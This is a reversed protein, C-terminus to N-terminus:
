GICDRMISSTSPSNASIVSCRALSSFFICCPRAFVKIRRSREDDDMAGSVMAAPIGAANFADAVIEAHKLSTCFTVNLKGRAHNGYHRVADGILVRDQEMREALEGKAYDGATTKIGTLDPRSPAFLRYQSLRGSQILAAISPGQDMTDFWEGLGAGSMKWPTASLGVVWAGIAQYHRIITELQAAGYHVEDVFIVNASPAKDLRRSLTPGSALQVRAFPNPAYGAAFYGFPINFADFTEATQKLLENRPVIFVSRSNKSLAAQIMAAAMVTKGSGTASQMLVSKNSRMSQRVRDILDSQDPYLNIPNM